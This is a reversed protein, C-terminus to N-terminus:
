ATSTAPPLTVTSDNGSSAVVGIAVAVAVGLGVFLLTNDEGSQAKHIGAPKGPAMVDAATVATPILLGASLGAILLKKM